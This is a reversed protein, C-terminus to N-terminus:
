GFSPSPNSSQIQEQTGGLTSDVTEQEKLDEQDFDDMMTKGVEMVFTQKLQHKMNLIPQSDAPRCKLCLGSGVDDRSSYFSQCIVCRPTVPKVIKNM